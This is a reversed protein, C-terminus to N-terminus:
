RMGAGISGNMLFNKTRYILNRHHVYQIQNDQNIDEPKKGHAVLLLIM